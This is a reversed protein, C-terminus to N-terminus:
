SPKPDRDRGLKSDSPSLSLSLCAWILLLTDVVSQVCLYVVFWMGYRSGKSSVEMKIPFSKTKPNLGWLLHM